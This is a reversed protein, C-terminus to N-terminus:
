THSEEGFRRYFWTKTLQTLVVYCVLIIALLLWYPLPLPVLGLACALPSVTLSAGVVVIFVSTLILPGSARTEILPIKNTRSVHIILTRTFLSEVFWGTQFLAPNHRCNFVCLMLFFTVYDFISSIPGIFLIFRLIGGIEWKRPMTLWDADVAGKCILTDLGTRDGVVVSMRRRVFDLPIEDIKCYEENAKLREELEQHALVAEDFLNKLGTHHCSNLYGYPLVRESSDGRPDLYRELVIKDHTIDGPALMELSVEANKDDRVLTGTNSVMAQLKAAANDAHMEQFFRLVVGLVVMVFIVAMARLDGTLFSLVGLALLLLVLPNKIHALLRMVASRHKERAIENTGVQKLRFDAEAESLGSLQSGLERLVTDTDARAHELLQGSYHTGDGGSLDGPRQSANLLKKPIGM